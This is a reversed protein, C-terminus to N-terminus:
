GGRALRGLIDAARQDLAPVHHAYRTATMTETAHGLRHAVEGIPIGAALLQTAAFHRLDHLRVGTIGLSDRLIAFAKTPSLPAWPNVGADSSFIWRPPEVSGQYSVAAELQRVHEARLAADLEASIALVRHGKLGTKTPREHVGAVATYALSRRIVLRQGDHDEWRLAVIEGRRAGTEVSVTLYLGLTTGAVAAILRAVEETTPPRVDRPPVAPRRALHVPNAPTIGLRVADVYAAALIQHVRRIRHPTWGDVALQRYTAEVIATTMTSAPRGTLTDPLREIVCLIDARYTPAHTAGALWATILEGVTATTPAVPTGGLALLLEAGHMSAETKTRRTGRRTQGAHQVTVQWHGSPLKRLHPM